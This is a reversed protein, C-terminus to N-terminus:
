SSLLLVNDIYARYSYSKAATDRIQFDNVQYTIKSITSHIFNNVVSCAIDKTGNKAIVASGDVKNIVKIKGNWALSYLDTFFIIIWHHIFDM